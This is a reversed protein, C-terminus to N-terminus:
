SCMLFVRLGSVTARLTDLSTNAAEMRWSADGEETKVGAHTHTHTHTNGAHRDGQRGAERDGQGGAGQRGAERFNTCVLISCLPSLM